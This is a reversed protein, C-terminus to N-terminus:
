LAQPCDSPHVIPTPFLVGILSEFCDILPSSSSVHIMM